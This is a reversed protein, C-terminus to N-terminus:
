RPRGGRGRYRPQELDAAWGGISPADLDLELVSLPILQESCQYPNVLRRDCRADHSVHNRWDTLFQHRPPCATYCACFPPGCQVAKSGSSIVVGVCFTEVRTVNVRGALSM